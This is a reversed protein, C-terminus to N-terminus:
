LTIYLFYVLGKGEYPIHPLLFVDQSPGALFFLRKSKEGDSKGDRQKIEAETTRGKICRGRGNM